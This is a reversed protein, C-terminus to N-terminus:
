VKASAAVPETSVRGQPLPKGDVTVIGTTPAVEPHNAGGCGVLTLGLCIILFQSALQKSDLLIKKAFQM